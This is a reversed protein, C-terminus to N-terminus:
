RLHSCHSVMRLAFRRAYRRSLRQRTSIPAIRYWGCLLVARLGDHFSNALPLNLLRSGDASCYPACVMTFATSSRLYSCDAAMRPAIRRAFRRSLRQRASSHTIRQWGSLFVTRSGAPSLQRRRASSHAIRRAIQPACITMFAIPSRFISCDSVMRQAIRRAFRRSLRQCTSTPTIRYWGSLLVARLGDSLSNVLPLILLVSGDASCYQACVTTFAMSLLFFSCDAVMWQAIRRAFRRSLRQGWSTHAIRQWGSLLVARLGDHFGNVLSLILSGGRWRSHMVARLGNHFGNIVPLILLGSGDASCYPAFVTTFATSSLFFSWDAAMRQSIRHSFRRSLWQRASSHAIRLWEGLLIARLGHFGNVLPLIHLGSGDASCYPACDTTFVMSSRLFTCNSARRPAMRRAFQRSFRQRASSHPIRQWGCLLTTRLGDHFGNVLPLILLASGDASCYPARVTPFATSSRFFSCHAATRQAIRRAFRRSLQPRASTHAIRHWGNLLVARLSDHFVNVLSLILSGGRWGTHLVAHLDDLVSNTLPPPRLRIGDASCHSACVTTFATPSRIISCDAAMRQAIRRTFRGSLQQCTSTPTIRYWGSLLVARLGDHFGNVLPPTLLAIGDASCFPACITTFATPLRLHPCDSVVQQTTRRAFRRSLQQCTSSQAIRQWGSLFVAHLGDHFGNILPPLLLGSGDASCYLACVTTFATSSRFISYDAPM